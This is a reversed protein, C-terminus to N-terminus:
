DFFIPSTAGGLSEGGLLSFGPSSTGPGRRETVVRERVLKLRTAEEVCRRLVAEITHGLRPCNDLILFFGVPDVGFHQPTLHIM